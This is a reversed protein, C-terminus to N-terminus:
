RLSESYEILSVSVKRKARPIYNTSYGGYVIEDKLIKHKMLDGIRIAKGYILTEEEIIKSIEKILPKIKVVLSDMEKELIDDLEEISDKYEKPTMLKNNLMDIRSKLFDRKNEATWLRKKAENYSDFNNERKSQIIDANSQKIEEGNKGLRGM